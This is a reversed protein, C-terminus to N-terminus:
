CRLSERSYKKRWNSCLFHQSCLATSPNFFNFKKTRMDTLFSSATHV